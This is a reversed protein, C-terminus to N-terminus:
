FFIAGYIIPSVIKLRPDLLAMLGILRRAAYHLRDGFIERGRKVIKLDM